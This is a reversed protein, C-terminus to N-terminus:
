DFKNPPAATLPNGLSITPIPPRLLASPGGGHPPRWGVQQAGGYFLFCPPLNFESLRVSQATPRQDKAKLTAPEESSSQFICSASLLDHSKETEMTLPVLEM